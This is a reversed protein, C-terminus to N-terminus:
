KPKDKKPKIKKKHQQQKQKKNKKTKKNKKKKAHIKLKKLFNNDQGVCTDRENLCKKEV